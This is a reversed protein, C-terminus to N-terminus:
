AIEPVAALPLYKKVESVLEDLDFPKKIFGDANCNKAIDAIDVATSFIIVPVRQFSEMAKIEKCLMHGEKKNVWEDLLILDAIIQAINISTHHGATIVEYGEAELIFSVVDAIGQDSEIILISKKM